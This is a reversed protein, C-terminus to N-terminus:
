SQSTSTNMKVIRQFINQHRFIELQAKWLTYNPDYIHTPESKAGNLEIVSFNRGQELEEFTNFRIDLRGYYFGPINALIANFTNELKQTIHKKGDLFATGRNHNGFPVLCRKEGLALVENLNIQERLKPIQMEFRPVKQLLQKISENGNGEVTLFQKLTIGTIKGKNENPLRCYFLGIENPYAVTEQILFSAQISQSYLIIEEVSNVKQVGVGRCGIDPKVILPFKLQNEIVLRVFNTPKNTEVLVTKPYYAQPLLKYIEAKSDGYFGGNKIGPNSYTFFSFSRFKLMNWLWLFFVPTYVVYVSWYEWNKVKHWWLKM